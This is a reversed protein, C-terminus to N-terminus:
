DEDEPLERNTTSSISSLCLSAAGAGSLTCMGGLNDTDSTGAPDLETRPVLGRVLATRPILGRVLETRPVLGCVLATRPDLGTLALLTASSLATVFCPRKSLRSTYCIRGTDEM